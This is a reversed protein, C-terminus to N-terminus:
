RKRSPHLHLHPHQAVVSTAPRAFRRITPASSSTYRRAILIKNGSFAIEINELRGNARIAVTM